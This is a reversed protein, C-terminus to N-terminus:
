WAGASSNLREGAAAPPVFVPEHLVMQLVPNEFKQEELCRFHQQTWRSKGARYRQGHRPLLAGPRQRTELEIAKMDERARMLDRMAEREEAPAWAARLEGARHLRALELAVRREMKM